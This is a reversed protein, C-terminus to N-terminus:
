LFLILRWFHQRPSCPTPLNGSVGQCIALSAKYSIYLPLGHAWINYLTKSRLYSLFFYAGFDPQTPLPALYSSQIKGNGVLILCLM